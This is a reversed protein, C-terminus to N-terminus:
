APVVLTGLEVTTWLGASNQAGLRVQWTGPPLPVSASGTLPQRGLEIVTPAGGADSRLVVRLKLWPTGPDTGTWSLSPTKPDAVVPDFQAQLQPAQVDWAVVLPQPLTLTTRNGALDVATIQAPYSGPAVGNGPAWVLTQHGRDLSATVSVGAATLTVKSRKSLAFGVTASDLFNDAPKPYIVTPATAPDPEVQPPQRVYAYFRTAAAQWFPDQTQDALKILIETVFREYDLTAEAGGLSYLSWSGTDFRPFFAQAAANMAAALARAAPDGTATVYDNLSLIAQLQANLVVQRDYSYLKIWPGGSLQQVLAVPVAAFAKGAVVLLSPDALLTSARSFAQAAVAQAMGSTWPPRGGAYAFYYEWRIGPGRPVARAALAAALTRTAESDNALAAANLAGMNALPHFQLGLGPFWRYVVGDGGTVDLPATPLPHTELYTLNQELMAFLALARPATLSGRQAAVESLVRAIVAARGRPLRAVDVRALAVDHRYRAADAPKLWRSAQAQAISRLVVKADSRVDARALGPLALACAAATLLALRSHV